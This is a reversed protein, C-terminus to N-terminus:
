SGISELNGEQIELVIDLKTGEGAVIKIRNLGKQIPLVDKVLESINTDPTAEAIPTVTKDPAIHVLKAKGSVVNLSYLIELESDEKARYKWVTDMGVLSKIEATLRDGEVNQNYNSLSYTNSISSIKKDNDYISSMPISSCGTITFVMILLLAISYKKM